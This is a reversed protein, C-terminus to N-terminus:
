RGNPDPVPDNPDRGANQYSQVDNSDVETKACGSIIGLALLGLILLSLKNM